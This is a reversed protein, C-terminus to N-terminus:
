LMAGYSNLFPVIVLLVMAIIFLGVIAMVAPEFLNALMQTRREVETEFYDQLRIFIQDSDGTENGVALWRSVIPPWPHNGALATAINEGSVLGEHARILGRKMLPSSLVPLSASIALDLSMGAQMLAVMAFCWNLCESAVYLRGIGPIGCRLTDLFLRFVTSVRAAVTSFAILMMGGFLSIGLWYGASSFTRMSSLVQPPVSQGMGSFLDTLRPFVFISMVVLLTVTLVSVFVPYALSGVIRKTSKDRISLYTALKRLTGPVDGTMSSIEILSHYMPPFSKGCSAIVDPFSLGESLKTNIRDALAKSKSRELITSSLRCAEPLPIGSGTLAALTETVEGVAQRGFRLTTGTRTNVESIISLGHSELFTRFEYESGTELEIRRRKGNRDQVRASFEM